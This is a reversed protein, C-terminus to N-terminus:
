KINKYHEGVIELATKLSVGKEFYGPFDQVKIGLMGPNDATNLEEDDIIPVDYPEMFLHGLRKPFNTKLDNPDFDASLPFKRLSLFEQYSKTRQVDAESTIDFLRNRGDIMVMGNHWLGFEELVKKKEEWCVIGNNTVILVTGLKILGQLFASAQPNSMYPRHQNVLVGNFDVAIPRPLSRIEGLTEANWVSGGVRFKENLRKATEIHQQETAIVREGM